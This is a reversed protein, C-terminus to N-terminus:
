RKRDADNFDHWSAGDSVVPPRADILRPEGTAPATGEAAAIILAALERAGEPACEVAAIAPADLAEGRRIAITVTREPNSHVTITGGGKKTDNVTGGHEFDHWGAGDSAAPPRADILRPEGEADGASATLARMAAAISRAVEVRSGVGRLALEVAPSAPRGTTMRASVYDIILLAEALKDAIADFAAADSDYEIEPM